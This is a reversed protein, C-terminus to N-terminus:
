NGYTDRKIFTIIKEKANNSVTNNARAFHDRTEIFAETSIHEFGVKIGAHVIDQELRTSVVFVAYRDCKLGVYASTLTPVLYNEIWQYKEPYDKWCQGPEDFYKETDFYPPCTFVFDLSDEDIEITESGSKHLHFSIDPRIQGILNAVTQADAFTLSAPECGIYTGGQCASSFGLLRASFGVSPDWVVPNQIYSIYKNYIAAAWAPKFWSVKMRQVIFGTRIDGMTINFIERGTYSTGDPLTYTYDKSNNLGLRYRIVNELSKDIQFNQVPGNDVLWYSHVRKKLWTSGLTSQNINTVKQLQCMAKVIDEDREPYFWGWYAVYARLYDKLLKLYTKEIFNSDNNQTMRIITDRSIINSDDTHKITGEKLVEGMNVIHYAYSILDEYSNIKDFDDEKIRILNLKKDRAIKNKKLDNTMSTIQKPTFDSQRDHGHWFVGDFEIITKSEPLYCDACWTKEHFNFWKSRIVREGLAELKQCFQEEAASSRRSERKMNAQSIKRGFDPTFVKERREEGALGSWSEIRSEYQKQRFDDNQWRKQWEKSFNYGSQALGERVAHGVKQRLEPNEYATKIKKNRCKIQEPTFDPQKVKFGTPNHGNVYEGYRYETAKWLTEKGCGCACLVKETLLYTDFYQRTSKIEPHSKALHNGLSRRNKCNYGCIVCKQEVDQIGTIM